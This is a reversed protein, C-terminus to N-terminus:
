SELLECARAIEGHFQSTFAPHTGEKSLKTLHAKALARLARAAADPDEDGIAIYAGYATDPRGDRWLDLMMWVREALVPQRTEDDFALVRARSRAGAFFLEWWYDPDDRATLHDDVVPLYLIAEELKKALEPAFPGDQRAERRSAEILSDVLVGIATAASNGSESAARLMNGAFEEMPTGDRFFDAWAWTNVPLEVAMRQGDFTLLRTELNQDYLKDWDFLTFM